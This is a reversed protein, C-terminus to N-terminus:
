KKKKYSSVLYYVAGAVVIIAIWAIWGKSSSKKQIVPPTVPPTDDAPPESPTEAPTEAPPTASPTTAEPTSTTEGPTASHGSSAPISSGSSPATTTTAEEAIAFYSFGPTVAEYYLKNGQQLTLRTELKTWTGDVLRYLAVKSSDTVKNANLSFRIKISSEVDGTAVNTATIQIYKIAGIIRAGGPVAALGKVQLAVASKDANMTMDIGDIPLDSVDDSPAWTLVQGKLVDGWDKKAPLTDEPGDGTDDSSGGSGGGGGGVKKAAFSGLLTTTFTVTSSGASTIACTGGVCMTGSALVTASDTEYGDIFYVKNATAIGHGTMTITATTNLRSNNFYTLNGMFYSLNVAAINNGLLVNTGLAITGNLSLNSRFESGTWYITGYGNSYEFYNTMSGNTEDKISQYICSLNNSSLTNNTTIGELQICMSLDETSIIKNDEVTNRNADSLQVGPSETAELTINNDEVTNDDSGDVEVGPAGLGNTTITNTGVTNSDSDDLWVGKGGLGSADIQNNSVDNGNSLTMFVAYVMIGSFTNDTVFSTNVGELRVPYLGGAISNATLTVGVSDNILVAPDSLMDFSIINDSIETGDSDRNVIGITGTFDIMSNNTIVCDDSDQLLFSYSGGAVDILSCNRVTVNTRGTINFGYGSSYNVQYGDCNIEINSATVNFCTGSSVVDDVLISSENIIGCNSVPALDSTSYNSFGSVNFVLTGGSYSVIDCDDCVEDNKVLIPASPYSLGYMTLQASTNLNALGADDMLGLLNDEIYVSNSTDLWVDVSLDDLVWEIKGFSSNYRLTNFALPATTDDIPVDGDSRIYNNEFTNDESAGDIALAPVAVTSLILNERFTSSVIDNLSITSGVANATKSINNNQVLLDTCMSASFGNWGLGSQVLENGILTTQNVNTFIVAYGETSEFRNGLITADVSDTLRMAASESTVTITNGTFTTDNVDSFFIADNNNAGTVNGQVINCNVVTINSVDYANVGYYAAGLYSYNITFGQCDLTVDSANIYFCTNNSSVNSTLTISSDVDGCSTSNGPANAYGATMLVLATFILVVAKNM